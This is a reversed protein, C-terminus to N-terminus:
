AVGGDNPDADSCDSMPTSTREANPLYCEILDSIDTMAQKRGDGAGASASIVAASRVPAPARAPARFSKKDMNIVRETDRELSVQPVNEPRKDDNKPRRKKAQSYGQPLRTSIKARMHLRYVIVQRTVGMRRGTDSLLGWRELKDLNAIITKRNQGTVAVLYGVSPFCELKQTKTLRSMFSLVILLAKTSSTRPPLPLSMAWAVATTSM